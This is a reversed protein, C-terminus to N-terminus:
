NCRSLYYEWNTPYNHCVPEPIMYTAVYGHASVCGYEQTVANYRARGGQPRECEYCTHCLPGYMFEDAKAEYESVDEIGLLAGHDSFHLQLAKASYFPVAEKIINYVYRALYKWSPIGSRRSDEPQRTM